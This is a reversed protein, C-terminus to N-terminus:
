TFANIDIKLTFQEVFAPDLVPFNIDPRGTKMSSRINELMNAVKEELETAAVQTILLALPALLEWTLRM